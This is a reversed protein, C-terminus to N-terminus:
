GRRRLKSVNVTMEAKLRARKRWAYYALFPAVINGAGFTPFSILAQVIGLVVFGHFWLYFPGWLLAWLWTLPTSEKYVDILLTEEAKEVKAETVLDPRENDSM